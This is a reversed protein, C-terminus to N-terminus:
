VTTQHGGGHAYGYLDNLVEVISKQSSDFEAIMSRDAPSRAPCPQGAVDAKCLFGWKIRVDQPRSAEACSFCIGNVNELDSWTNDGSAADISTGPQLMLAESNCSACMPRLGLPAGATHCWRCNARMAELTIKERRITDNPRRILHICTNAACNYHLPTKSDDMLAGAYILRMQIARYGFLPELYRHKIERFKANPPVM